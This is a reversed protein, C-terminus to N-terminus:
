EPVEVMKGNALEILAAYVDQGNKIATDIVSRIKAYRDAGKGEENRFQGSVKTKIKVNRIARESANNDPPVKQFTLFTFISQRHKNMRKIFAQEKSHFESCDVALLEDLKENMAAVETPPNLYHKETMTRKLEIASMFLQKMQASWDSKLNEIFNTLERLLHAMCLQHAKAKVKLQSAWCDSVYFSEIFGDAFYEEIVTYGRSAFSVIFTLLPTQWVHFWYKKGGVRCGTEDSGVVESRLLRDRISQYAMDSKQSLNDLFTDISGGSLRLGFFAHFLGCIRQYPLSQYVSLYGTMAEIQTGYQIPAKLHEPFTGKNEFQCLPCNKEHSRHEIYLASIPPLEVSQRSTFSSSTVEQLNEGCYTCVQPYHDIIEDPTDSVSLTCGPHGPQGGSKRGSSTRLSIQNSRGIDHSPATSSTRSCKGGKLLSITKELQQVMTRLASIERQMEEYESRLITIKEEV